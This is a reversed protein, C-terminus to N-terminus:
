RKNKRIPVKQLENQWQDIGPGDYRTLGVDGVSGGSKSAARDVDDFKGRQPRCHVITLTASDLWAEASNASRPRPGSPVADNKILM